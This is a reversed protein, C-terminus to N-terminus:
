KKNAQQRQRIANLVSKDDVLAKGLEHKFDADEQFETLLTELGLSVEETDTTTKGDDSFVDVGFENLMAKRYNIANEIYARNTLPKDNPTAKHLIEAYEKAPKLDSKQKVVPRKNVYENLLQNYQEKIQDLETSPVMVEMQQKLTEIQELQMQEVTKDM